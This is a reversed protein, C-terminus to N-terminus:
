CAREVGRLAGLYTLWSALCLVASQAALGAAAGTAGWRAAAAITVPMGVAVAAAQTLFVARGEGLARVGLGPGVALGQALAALGAFPVLTGYLGFHEGFVLTFTRPWLLVVGFYGLVISAGLASALGARQRMRRLDPGVNGRLDPLLLPTLAALALTAPSLLLQAARLGGLAGLGAVASIALIGVQGAGQSLLVQATMGGSLRKTARLWLPLAAPRPRPRLLVLALVAGALGGAGWAALIGWTHLLGIAAAAALAVSQVGMWLLDSLLACGPRGSAFFAYRGWDQTLVALLGLALAGLAGDGLVIAVAGTAMAVLGGIALTSALSGSANRTGFVLMPEGSVARHFAIALYAVALARAVSGLGEPGIARAAVIGVLGNTLSSVAQDAFVLGGRRVWARLPAGDARRRAPARV